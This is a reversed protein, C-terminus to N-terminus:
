EVFLINAIDGLQLRKLTERTPIGTAPDWGHLHYYEDLLKDLEEKSNMMINTGVDLPENMMRWPLVDHTRNYGLNVNFARELNVIREGAEMIEGETIEIGTASSFMEAMKKPTVGYALTTSFACFGLADTVAYCNEHWLVIEARKETLWPNAYKEDGTIEKILDRAEPTLGFEAMCETTLHDPGRSNTAFALAYSKASRTEVRSQELGNAQVAWKWSEGGIRESAIKTGEALIDGLGERLGIKHVMEVVADGNGWVLEIGDTDAKTILGKEYCEMAWQIVGGTSITDLGYDNCLGGAKIITETDTVGCGAGLASLTEYEPGAIKTGQYKGHDITCYRHCSVGCSACGMRGKLYGKEVLWQGTLSEVGDIHGQRFNYSPFGHSANVGEVISSTGYMYLGQAGVDKSLAERAELAAENFREAQATSISGTGRVAIAKLNKSGMVAGIGGRAAAFSVSVMIAAIKTLKEGAPGICATEFNHGHKEKIYKDADKVVKGWIEGADFIEIKDDDIVIYVPKSSAGHIVLHDYGAYKLRAGWYGGVNSKLYRNTAAGLCTVTTRGSSPAHTGSLGGSGFILVNEPGLPDIGPKTLNWLLHANIGRAGLYKKILEDKLPETWVERTTLNIHLIKGAHVRSM